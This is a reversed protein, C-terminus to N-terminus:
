PTELAPLLHRARCPLCVPGLPCGDGFACDADATDDIIKLMADIRPRNRENKTNRTALQAELAAVRALATDRQAVFMAVERRWCAVANDHQQRWEDRDAELHTVVDTLSSPHVAMGGATRPPPCCFLDAARTINRMKPGSAGCGRHSCRAIFHNDRQIISIRSACFPCSGAPARGDERWRRLEADDPDHDSM